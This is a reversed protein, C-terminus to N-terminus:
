EVTRQTGSNWGHWSCRSGIRDAATEFEPLISLLEVVVLVRTRQRWHTFMVTLRPLGCLDDSGMLWRTWVLHLCVVSSMKTSVPTVENPSTFIWRDASVVNIVILQGSWELRVSSWRQQRRADLCSRAARDLKRDSETVVDHVSSVLSMRRTLM